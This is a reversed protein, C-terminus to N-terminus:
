STIGEPTIPPFYEVGDFVFPRGDASKGISVPGAGRGTADIREDPRMFLAYQLLWGKLAITQDPNLNHEGASLLTSLLENLPSLKDIRKGAVTIQSIM